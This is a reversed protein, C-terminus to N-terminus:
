QKKSDLLLGEWKPPFDRRPHTPSRTSIPSALGKPRSQLWQSHTGWGGLTGQVQPLSPKARTTGVQVSLEPRPGEETPKYSQFTLLFLLSPEPLGERPSVVAGPLPSGLATSLPKNLGRDNNALHSGWSEMPFPGQNSEEGVYVGGQIKKKGTPFLTWAKQQWGCLRCAGTRHTGPFGLM